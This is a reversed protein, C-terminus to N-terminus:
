GPLAIFHFCAMYVSFAHWLGYCVWRLFHPIGFCQSEIGIRYLHPHKMFYFTGKPDSSKMPNVDKEHEFDFLAFFMIPLATM